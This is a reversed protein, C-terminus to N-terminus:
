APQSAKQRRAATVALAYLGFFLGAYLLDGAVTNRFFPIGLWYCQLLGTLTKPYETGLLWDAFNTAVFFQLGALLSAGGILLPSSTDRVMRGLLVYLAFSAYIVPTAWTVSPLGRSALPKWLLADSAMMVALPVLWALHSRLRAGAFLGLAGVPTFNWVYQAAPSLNFLYPVLRYVVAFVALGAVLLWAV